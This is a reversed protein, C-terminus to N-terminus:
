FEAAVTIELVDAIEDTNIGFDVRKITFNSKLSLQNGKIILQGSAKIPKSIGHITLTGSATVPYNGSKSFDIAAMNELFGKFGTKPFEESNMYEKDNFHDQMLENEFIFGRILGTFKIQGSQNNFSCVVSHNTAEIDESSGKSLFRISAKNTLFAKGTNNKEEKIVKQSSDKKILTVAQQKITDLYSSDVLLDNVSLGVEQTAHKKLHTPLYIIFLWIDGFTLLCALLIALGTTKHKSLFSKNAKKNNRIFFLLVIGWILAAIAFLQPIEKLLKFFM